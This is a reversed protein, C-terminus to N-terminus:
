VPAGRKWQKSDRQSAHRHTNTSMIQHEPKRVAEMLGEGRMRPVLPFLSPSACEVILRPVLILFVLVILRGTIFEKTAHAM